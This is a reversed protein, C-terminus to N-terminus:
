SESMSTLSAIATSLSASAQLLSYQKVCRGPLTGLGPSRGFLRLRQIKLSHELLWGIAIYKHELLEGSGDSYQCVLRM